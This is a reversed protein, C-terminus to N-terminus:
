ANGMYIPQTNNHEYKFLLPSNNQRYCNILRLSVGRCCLLGTNLWDPLVLLVDFMTGVGFGVM